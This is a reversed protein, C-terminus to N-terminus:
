DLHVYEAKLLTPAGHVSCIHRSMPLAGTFTVPLWPTDYPLRVWRTQRESAGAALAQLDLTEVSMGVYLMGCFARAKREASKESFFCYAVLAIVVLVVASALQVFTRLILRTM